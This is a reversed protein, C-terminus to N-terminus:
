SPMMALCIRSSGPVHTPAGIENTGLTTTTRLHHSPALAGRSREPRVSEETLIYPPREVKGVIRDHEAVARPLEHGVVPRKRLLRTLRAGRNALVAEPM